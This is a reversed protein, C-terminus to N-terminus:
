RQEVELLLTYPIPGRIQAEIRSYLRRELLVRLVPGLGHLQSINM